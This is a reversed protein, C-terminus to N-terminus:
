SDQSRTFKTARAQNTTRNVRFVDVPGVTAVYSFLGHAQLVGPDRVMHAPLLVWQVDLPALRRSLGARAFSALWLHVLGLLDLLNVSSVQAAHARSNATRWGRHVSAPRSRGRGHRDRVDALAKPEGMLLVVRELLAGEM